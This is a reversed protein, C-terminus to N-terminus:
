FVLYERVRLALQLLEGAELTWYDMGDVLISCRELDALSLDDFHGADLLDVLLLPLNPEESVLHRVFLMMVFDLVLEDIQEWLM